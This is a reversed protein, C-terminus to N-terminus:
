KKHCESIKLIPHELDIHNPDALKQYACKALPADRYEVRYSTVKTFGRYQEHRSLPAVQEKKSLDLESAAMGSYNPALIDFIISKPRVTGHNVISFRLEKGDDCLDHIEIKNKKCDVAKEGVCCVCPCNMGEVSGISKGDVCRGGMTNVIIGSRWGCEQPTISWASPTLFLLSSFAM